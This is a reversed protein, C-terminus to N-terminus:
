FICITMHRGSYDLYVVSEDDQLIGKHGKATLRLGQCGSIQQITRTIKGKASYWTLPILKCARQTQNRENSMICKLNMQATTLVLLGNRKIAFLIVDHPHVTTTQGNMHQLQGTVTMNPAEECDDQRYPQPLRRGKSSESQGGTCEGVAALMMKILCLDLWAIGMSWVKFAGMARLIITSLMRVMKQLRPRM